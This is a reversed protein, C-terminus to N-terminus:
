IRLKLFHIFFPWADFVSFVSMLFVLSFLVQPNLRQIMMPSLVLSLNGLSQLNGATWNSVSAPLSALKFNGVM